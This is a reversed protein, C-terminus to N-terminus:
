ENVDIKVEVGPSILKSLKLVDWNTLRICGHSTSRGITQPSDTGHIGIGSKNLSIWIVGVENNPGPPINFFYKGRKGMNLMKEDYRFWPLFTIKVIKWVGKPAPLGTSGPTIPFVALLDENEYVRLIRQKTHIKIVRKTFEPKPKALTKPKIEEIIFPEVNPVKLIDGAKLTNINKGPNITKLLHIDSHFREAVFEGFSAYPIFKKQSQERPTKPVKGIFKNDSEKIKYEIYLPNITSMPYKLNAKEEKSLKDLLSFVFRTFQGDVGDIKGPSFNNKDLYIQLKVTQDSYLTDAATKFPLIFLISFGFSFVTAKKM